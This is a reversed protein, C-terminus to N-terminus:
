KEICDLIKFFARRQEVNLKLEIGHDEEPIDVSIEDQIEKFYGDDVSDTDLDMPVDPLDYSSIDKGMSELYNSLSKLTKSVQLEVSTGVERKFDESLAEFYTNWLIGVDTPVCHVLIITFLRRLENPMQFTIAENLCKLISQDAELLGRKHTAEKFSSCLIGNVILLYLFSTPGRM